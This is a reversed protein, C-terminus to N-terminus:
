LGYQAKIRQFEECAAFSNMVTKRDVGGDLATKWADIGAQDAERDMFTRYLAQVFAEDTTNKALYEGSWFFSEAALEPSCGGGAIAVTWSEIGDEDGQRELITSYLREAFSYIGPNVASGDENLFGRSIDYERCLNFFEPSNVFGALIAGRTNGSELLGSWYAKGADDAERCFFTSYLVQIYEDNSYNKGTFETGMIFGVSLSAADNTKNMLQETWFDVGSPDSARGLAVTYMREVFSRVQQERIEGPSPNVVTIACTASYEGVTVTIDATGVGVSNVTGITLVEGGHVTAVNENSSTWTIADSTNAPTVTAVIDYLSYIDMTHESVSLSVGTAPVVTSDVVTITCTASYNGVTVTIDATGVGVSNIKGESPIEGQYVRAVNTDSSTWTITDTANAPEVVAYISYLSYIEMTHGTVSLSVGTAPVNHPDVVTITVTASYEGVTVTIDATGVGVSNIIGETFSEGHHVTAVNEDSSSWVIEDSTNAPTVTAPISYLSYIDMTHESVPLSVGTAPVNYPDVVTITVTASYAGVTVTIDATGVGVSNIIGEASTAGMHVTAVNEDSSTWMPVDTTDAPTITAVINYLSYIDMTHSTVPLTVGTAPVNPDEVTITCTASYDGITATIDATGVGVATIIGETSFAGTTVTAVNENSSTWTVDWKIESPTVEAILNYIEFPTMTYSSTSLSIGTPVLDVVTVKCTASYNGVTVTIDTTGPSMANIVGQTPDGTSYVTAVSEDSSSWMIMESTDAPTVTATLTHSYGSYVSCETESLTVGTAPVYSSDEVTVTCTASYDGVTVTIDATGMSWCSVTAEMSMPDVTVTAVKENSSSWMASDTCNEPTIIASLEFSYGSNNNAIDVTRSTESLTVSQAHVQNPDYVTVECSASKGGVTVTITTTGESMGYVTCLEKEVWPTVSAVMDDSSVWTVEGDSYHLPFIDAQLVLTEGVNLTQETVNLTLKEVPVYEAVFPISNEGAFTEAYSGQEGYITVKEADYFAEIDITTVTEPIYIKELNTCYAFADRRITEVDRPLIVSTLGECEEFAGEGIIYLGNGFEVKNLSTCGYFADAEIAYSATLGGPLVLEELKDCGSFAGAGINYLSEPFSVEVLQKCDAFAYSEIMGINEPIVIKELGSGEFVYSYITQMSGPLTVEKLSTCYKFAQSDITTVTDPIVVNALSTCGYFAEWGITTVTSPIEITELGTCYRFLGPVIETIRSEFTVNKLNPCYEFSGTAWTLRRPIEVSELGDCYSFASGELTELKKPLVLTKISDCNNFAGGGIYKVKDPFNLEAVNTDAFSHSGISELTSPFTVKELVSNAFEQSGISIVGEPIVVETIYQNQFLSVYNLETMGTKFVAKTIPAGKDCMLNIVDQKAIVEMQTLETCDEFAGTGVSVLADSVVVNKLATCNAFAYEGITELTNPMVLNELAYCCRFARDGVTKLGEGLDIEAVKACNYFASASITEVTDPLNISTLGTCNMFASDGITVLGEGLTVSTLNSCAAFEGSGITEIGDPLIVTTLASNGAFVETALETLGERIEIVKFEDYVAYLKAIYEANAPLVAEELATCGEFVKSDFYYLSDPFSIKYLSTCDSFAYDYIVKLGEPLVLPGDAGLLKCQAFVSNSIQTLKSDPSFTVSRLMSCGQFVGGPLAMVTSPIHIESLKQCHAFGLSGIDLLGENFSVNELSNCWRFAGMEVYRLTSPFIIEQLATCCDFAFSKIYILGENLTVKTLATCKYFASESIQTVASSLTVETITTNFSFANEGIETVSDPIVIVTESGTYATLVGDTIVFDGASAAVEIEEKAVMEVTTEMIEEVVPIEPEAAVTPVVDAVVPAESAVAAPSETEVVVPVETEVVVQVEAEAVDPVLTEVVNEVFETSQEVTVIMEPTGEASVALPIDSVLLIGVLLGALIRKFM